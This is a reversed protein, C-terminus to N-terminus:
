PVALAGSSKKKKQPPSIEHIEPPVHSSLYDGFSYLLCLSSYILIKLIAQWHPADECLRKSPDPLSITVYGFKERGPDLKARPQFVSILFYSTNNEINQKTEPKNQNKM